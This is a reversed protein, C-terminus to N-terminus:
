KILEPNTHINLIEYYEKFSIYKFTFGKISGRKNNLVRSLNGQHLQQSKILERQSKYVREIKNDVIEAVPLSRNRREMNQKYRNEEWTLWQINNKLYGRKNIIRDITPKKLKSFNSAVWENFLREFKKCEAFLHLYELDFEVDHRSKMKGYLNTLLGRKTKRWKQVAGDGRFKYRDTSM